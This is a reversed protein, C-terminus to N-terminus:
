LRYYNRIKPFHIIVKTYKGEESEITIDHGLKNALQKALYLGMGTSQAHSRGISGTFGKEFVRNIDEQKIGIGDDEVIVRKEKTDEELLVTINGGDGTYKLANVIIQDFVFGLWKSDTHVLKEENEITFNIKKTIFLKAYKKASNKAIQNINIEKIFYDKSFSDVRSYYLAQEVYYDIKEIEDEFKDVLMSVSKDESNEILLRSAAIPLKVEHIWSMIFEQQDRKEEFLQDLQEQYDTLINQFHQLFLKQENTQAEAVIARLDEHRGKIYENYNRYFRIRYLYGFFIYISTFVACSINVYIIVSLIGSQDTSVAMILSIFTMLCLYFLLFFRRDKIYELFTM